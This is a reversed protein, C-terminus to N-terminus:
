WAETAVLSEYLRRLLGGQGPAGHRGPRASVPRSAGRPTPPMSRAAASRWRGDPGAGVPPAPAPRWAPSEGRKHATRDHAADLTRGLEAPDDAEVLRMRGGRDRILAWYHESFEGFWLCVGPFRRRMEALVRDPDIDNTTTPATAAKM